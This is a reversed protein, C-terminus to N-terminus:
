VFNYSTQPREYAFARAQELAEVAMRRLQNVQSAPIFWPQSWNLTVDSAYFLTNGLKMLQETVTQIAREPQSAPEKALEYLKTYHISYSTIVLWVM